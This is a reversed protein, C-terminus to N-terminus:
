NEKRLELKVKSLKSKYYNVVGTFSGLIFLMLIVVIKWKSDMHKNIKIM